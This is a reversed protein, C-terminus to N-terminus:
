ALKPAGTRRHHLRADGRGPDPESWLLLDTGNNEAVAALLVGGLDPLLDQM